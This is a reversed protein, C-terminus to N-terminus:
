SESVVQASTNQVHQAQSRDRNTVMTNHLETILQSGTKEFLFPLFAHVLAVIAGFCFKGCFTLAVGMHQLYTENVSAPHKTFLKIIYSM